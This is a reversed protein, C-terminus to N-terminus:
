STKVYNTKDVVADFLVKIGYNVGLSYNSAKQNLGNLPKSKNFFLTPADKFELWSQWPIKYGVQINYYQKSGDNTDTTIKLYNFVDGDDLVYGRTSDLEIQQKGNVITQDSLDIELSRLSDWTNNNLEFVAIDFKLSNLNAENLVWFRGDAM